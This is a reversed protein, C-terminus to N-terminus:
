EGKEKKYEAPDYKRYPKNKTKVYDRHYVSKAAKKLPVKKKAETLQLMEKLLSLPEYSENVGYATDVTYEPDKDHGEDRLWEQALEKTDFPSTICKRASDGHKYYVCYKIM